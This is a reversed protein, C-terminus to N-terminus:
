SSSLSMRSPRRGTGTLLVQAPGSRERPTGEQGQSEARRLQDRLALGGERAEGLVPPRVEDLEAARLVGQEGLRNLLEPADGLAEAEVIAAVEAPGLAAIDHRLVEVLM